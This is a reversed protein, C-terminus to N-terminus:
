ERRVNVNQRNSTHQFAQVQVAEPQLVLVFGVIAVVQVVIQM